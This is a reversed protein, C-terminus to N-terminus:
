QRNNCHVIALERPVPLRSGTVAAICAERAVQELRVPGDGATKCTAELRTRTGATLTGQSRIMRQCSALARQGAIATPSTSEATGCGALAATGALSVLLWKSRKYHM